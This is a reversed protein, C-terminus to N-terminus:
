IGSRRKAAENAAGRCRWRSAVSWDVKRHSGNPLARAHTHHTRAITRLCTSSSSSSDNEFHLSCPPSRRPPSVGAKAGRMGTSVLFIPLDLGYIRCYLWPTCQFYRAQVFIFFVNCDSETLWMLYTAMGCVVSLCCCSRCCCYLLMCLLLRMCLLLLLLPLLVM